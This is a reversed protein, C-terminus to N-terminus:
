ARLRPSNIIRSLKIDSNFNEVTVSKIWCCSCGNRVNLGFFLDDEISLCLKKHTNSVVPLYWEFIDRSSISKGWRTTPCCCLNIRHQRVDVFCCNEPFIYLEIWTFLYPIDTFCLSHCKRTVYINDLNVRLDAISKISNHRAPTISNRTIIVFWADLYIYHTVVIIRGM